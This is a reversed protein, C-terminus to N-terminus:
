IPSRWPGVSRYEYIEDTACDQFRRLGTNVLMHEWESNIYGDGNTRINIVDELGGSM